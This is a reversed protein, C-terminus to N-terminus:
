QRTVPSLPCALCRSDIVAEARHLCDIILRLTTGDLSHLRDEEFLSALAFILTRLYLAAARLPYLEQLTNLRLELARAALAADETKMHPPLAETLREDLQAALYQADEPPLSAALRALLDTIPASSQTYSACDHPPSLPSSGTM